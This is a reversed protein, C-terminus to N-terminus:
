KIPLHLIRYLMIVVTLRRLLRCGSFGSHKWFMKAAHSICTTMSLTSSCYFFFLVAAFLNRKERGSGCPRCPQFALQKRAKHLHDSGDHLRAADIPTSQEGASPRNNLDTATLVWCATSCSWWIAEGPLALSTHSICRRRLEDSMDM